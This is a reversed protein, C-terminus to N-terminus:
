PAILVSVTSFITGMKLYYYRVNVLQVALYMRAIERQCECVNPMTSYMCVIKQQCKM